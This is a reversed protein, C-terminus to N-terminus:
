SAAFLFVLVESKLLLISMARLFQHPTHAHGFAAPGKM